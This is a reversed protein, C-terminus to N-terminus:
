SAGDRPGSRYVVAGHELLEAPTIVGPREGTAAWYALESCYFKTPDDFGFMGRVDFAVGLQSRARAVTRAGGGATPRVVIVLHTRQLFAALPLERVGSGVAEIVLNRRADYVAGHSLSEGRTGLVILDSTAYYARTLLWDGDQAVRAVEGAWRATIAADAVPDAPRHILPSRAACGTAAVAIWALVALSAAFSLLPRPM